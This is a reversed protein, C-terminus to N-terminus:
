GFVVKFFLKVNTFCLLQSINENFSWKDTQLLKDITLFKNHGLEFGEEQSWFLALPLTLIPSVNM